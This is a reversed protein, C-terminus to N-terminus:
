MSVGPCILPNSPTDCPSLAPNLCSVSGGSCSPPFAVRRHSQDASPHHGRVPSLRIVPLRLVGGPFSWTGAWPSLSLSPLACHDWGLHLFDLCHPRVVQRQTLCLLTHLVTRWALGRNLSRPMRSATLRLDADGHASAM